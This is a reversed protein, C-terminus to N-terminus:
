ASSRALRFGEDVRPWYATNTVLLEMSMEDLDGQETVPLWIKTMGFKTMYPQRGYSYRWKAQNLAFAIFFLVAAPLPKKPTCIIVNDTAIFKKPQVFADGGVTSVTIQGGPYVVAGDPIGFYGVVGNNEAVRSVTRYPGRDLEAISHFDGREIDFLDLINFSKWQLTLMPIASSRSKEPVLERIDTGCLRAIAQEDILGGKEDGELIPVTLSVNRLKERFCKRGYSYRWTGRSLLAAVYLLTADQMGSRPILVAVDDKAGFEYPHFKALLPWSGNYAVTICHRYRNEEPVDFFGVLGNNGDGCSILPVKGSDLEKTAHFDGSKVDFLDDIRKKTLTWNM